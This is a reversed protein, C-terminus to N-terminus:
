SHRNRKRGKSVIGDEVKRLVELADSMKSKDLYGLSERIFPDDLMIKIQAIKELTQEEKYTLGEPSLRCNDIM